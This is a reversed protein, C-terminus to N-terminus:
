WEGRMWHAIKGQRRIGGVDPRSIGFAFKGFGSIMIAEGSELAPKMLELLAEVAAERM